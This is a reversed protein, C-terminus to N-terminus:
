MRCSTNLFENRAVASCWLNASSTGGTSITMTSPSLYPSLAQPLVRLLIVCLCGSDNCVICLGLRDQPLSKSFLHYKLCIFIPPKTGHGSYGKQSFACEEGVKFTTNTEIKLLSTDMRILSSPPPISRELSGIM